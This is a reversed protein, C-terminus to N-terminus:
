CMRGNDAGAAADFRILNNLTAITHQSAFKILPHFTLVSLDPILAVGM